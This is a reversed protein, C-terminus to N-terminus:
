PRNTGLRRTPTFRVPMAELGTIFNAPRRALPGEGALALDPLRTLVREVMVRLELRALSSGLCHHTGVGFALHENPSRLVDFRDADPFHTEDLNASEYLLLVKEGGSLQAGRWRTDLRVTRCMNKIPSVWRLM